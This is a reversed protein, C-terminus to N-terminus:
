QLEEPNAAASQGDTFTIGTRFVLETFPSVSLSVRFERAAAPRTQPLCVGALAFLLLGVKMSRMLALIVYRPISRVMRKETGSRAPRAIDITEQPEEGLGGAGLTGGFASAGLGESSDRCRGFAFRTPESTTPLSRSPLGNM